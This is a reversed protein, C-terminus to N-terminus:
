ARVPGSKWGLALLALLLLNGGAAIACFAGLLAAPQFASVIAAVAIWVFNMRRSLIIWMAIRKRNLRWFRDASGCPQRPVLYQQIRRFFEYCRWILEETSNGCLVARQRRLGVELLTDRRSSGAGGAGREYQEKAGEFAAAQLVMSIAAAIGLPWVLISGALNAAANTAGLMFPIGVLLALFARAIEAHSSGFARSGALQLGALNLIECALLFVGAWFRFLPSSGNTLLLTSAILGTALGFLFWHVARLSQARRWELLAVAAPRLFRREVPTETDGAVAM